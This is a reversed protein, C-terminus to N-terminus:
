AGRPPGACAVHGMHDQLYFSFILGNKESTSGSGLIQSYSGPSLGLLLSYPCLPLLIFCSSFLTIEALTGAEGQNWPSNQLM